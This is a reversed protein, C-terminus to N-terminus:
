TCCNLPTPQNNVEPGPISHVFGIGAPSATQGTHPESSQGRLQRSFRNFNNQPQISALCSFTKYQLEIIIESTLEAPDREISKNCKAFNKPRNKVVYICSLVDSEVSVICTAACANTQYTYHLVITYTNCSCRVATM